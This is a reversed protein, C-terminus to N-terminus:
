KILSKGVVRPSHVDLHHDGLSLCILFAVLVASNFICNPTYLILSLFKCTMHACGENKEIPWQCGPCRKTTKEVVKLSAKEEKIKRKAEERDWIFRKKKAEERQGEREREREERHRERQRRQEDLRQKHILDRAVKEDELKQLQQSAELEANSKDVSSTFNDPDALFSDYEACTM